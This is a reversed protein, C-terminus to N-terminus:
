SKHKNAMQGSLSWKSHVELCAWEEIETQIRNILWVFRYCPDLYTLEGDAVGNNLWDPCSLTCNKCIYSDSTNIQYPVNEVLM